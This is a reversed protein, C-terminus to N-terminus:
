GPAAGQNTITQALYATDGTKEGFVMLLDGAKIDALTGPQQMRVMTSGDTNVTFMTGDAGQVMMM